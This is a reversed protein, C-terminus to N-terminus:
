AANARAAAAELLAEAEPWVARMWSRLAPDEKLEADLRAVEEPAPLPAGAAELADALTELELDIALDVTRRAAIAHAEALDGARTAQVMRVVLQASAMLPFGPHETSLMRLAATAESQRGLAALCLARQAHLQPTLLLSAFANKGVRAIGRECCALAEGFRARRAAIRALQHEAAAALLPLQSRAIKAFAREAADVDDNTLLRMAAAFRRASRRNVFTLAAFVVVFVVLGIPWMSAELGRDQTEGLPASARNDVSLFQWIALFVIILAVWLILTKRLQGTSGMRARTAEAPMVAYPSQALEKTLDVLPATARPPDEPRETTRYASASPVHVSRQLARVIARQRPTVHALLSRRERRLLAALDGRSREDRALVLAEALTVRALVPPMALKSGRVAAADARAGSADGLQASAVARIARADLIQLRGFDTLFPWRRSELARSAEDRATAADDRAVAIMARQLQMARLLAGRQSHAPISALLAEAEGLQGRAICDLSRDLSAGAPALRRMYLGTLGAFVAFGLPVLVPASTVQAGYVTALGAVGVGGVGMMLMGTALQKLPSDRPSASVTGQAYRM